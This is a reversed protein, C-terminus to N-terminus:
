SLLSKAFVGKEFRVTFDFTSKEINYPDNVITLMNKNTCLTCILSPATYFEFVIGVGDM